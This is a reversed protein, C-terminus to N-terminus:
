SLSAVEWRSKSETKEAEKESASKTAVADVEVTIKCIGDATVDAKLIRGGFVQIEIETKVNM